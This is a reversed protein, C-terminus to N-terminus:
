ETETFVRAGRAFSRSPRSYKKMESAAADWETSTTLAEARACLAEKKALNDTWVKKRDTLDERRRAFFANSATRFRHALDRGAERSVPGLAQWEVQLEKFRGAAKGWDSSQALAEAETVLSTKKELSSHREERLKAFYGECRSRIFDTATRFRDWLRQASNRPAEAVEQWKTHLERLARATAPLDSTKSQEEDTKLSLVIAEAMAILQEQRQANAFRRWDDMERLERVRPAVQEQLSKLRAITEDLDKGDSLTGASELGAGIDRMLREGERLTITDADAVRKARDGLRALQTLADLRAKVATQEAAADLAAFGASVASLRATVDDVSRGADSLLATMGRAERSLAQWRPASAAEIPLAEAEAVLAELRGRM